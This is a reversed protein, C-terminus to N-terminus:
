KKGFYKPKWRLNWFFIRIAHSIKKCKKVDQFIKKFEIVNIIIPNNTNINKTLWYIVKEEEKEYTWFIKDWIMFM